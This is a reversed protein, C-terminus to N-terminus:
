QSLDQALMLTNGDPDFFTALKTMEPIVMTEGDFKVKNAELRARAKDIDKVGFVVTAGGQGEVKEVQSLGLTLNPTPTQLEAWGMEDVKFRLELGLQTQYWSLSQELSSVSLACTTVGDYDIKTSM